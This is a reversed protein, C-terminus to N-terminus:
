AAKGEAKLGQRRSPPNMPCPAAPAAASLRRFERETWRRWRARARRGARARDRRQKAKADDIRQEARDFIADQGVEEFISSSTAPLASTSAAVNAAMKRPSIAPPREAARAGSPTMACSISMASIQQANLRNMGAVPRASGAKAEVGIDESRGAREQAFDHLIALKEGRSRATEQNQIAPATASDSVGTTSRLLVPAPIATSVAILAMKASPMPIPEIAAASRAFPRMRNRGTGSAASPM